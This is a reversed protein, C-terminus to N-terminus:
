ARLSTLIMALLGLPEESNSRKGYRADIAAPRVM